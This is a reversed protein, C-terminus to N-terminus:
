LYRQVRKIGQEQGQEFIFAVRCIQSSLKSHNSFLTDDNQGSNEHKLAIKCSKFIVFLMVFLIM